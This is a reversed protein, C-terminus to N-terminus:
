FLECELSHRGSLAKGPARRPQESCRHWRSFGGRSGPQETARCVTTDARCPPLTPHSGFPPVAQTPMAMLPAALCSCGFCSHSERNCVQSSNSCVPQASPGSMSVKFSTTLHLAQYNSMFHNQCPDALNAFHSPEASPSSLVLAQRLSHLSFTGGRAPFAEKSLLM